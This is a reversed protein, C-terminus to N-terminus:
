SRRSHEVDVGGVGNSTAEDRGVAGNAARGARQERRSVKSRRACHQAAVRQGDGVGDRALSVAAQGTRILHPM